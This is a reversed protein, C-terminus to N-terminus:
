SLESCPYAQRQAARGYPLALLSLCCVCCFEEGVLSRRKVRGRRLKGQEGCACFAAFELPNAGRAFVRRLSVSTKACRARLTACALLSLCCICCFEGGVLSRRKVRGRRLRGQEGCACFAAFELPNAGRVFARRLSVSTKACRARLTACAFVLFM